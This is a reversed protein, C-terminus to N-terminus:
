IDNHWTEILHCNACLVDCKTMEAELDPWSLNAIGVRGRGKLRTNKTSPDRHHFGLVRVDCTGCDRCCSVAKVERMRTLKQDYVKRVAERNSGPNRKRYERQYERDYATREDASARPM